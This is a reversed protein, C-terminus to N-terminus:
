HAARCLGLVSFMCALSTARESGHGARNEICPGVGAVGSLSGM